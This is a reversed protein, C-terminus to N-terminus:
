KKSSLMTMYYSYSIFDVTNEKLLEEDEKTIEITIRNEEFYRHMYSPYYGRSQVDTYFLNNQDDKISVLVDEPNCTEPYNELRALMCGVQGNPIIEHCKKVAEASALFQHHLAQYVTNIDLSKEATIGAGIYPNITTINIENFTLWYKVSNKYREFVTTCYKSFFSILKRNEWGGYKLVLNLPMEYHCLTVLPEINYKKLEKFVSDYFKLGEENPETDDGNPFIRPWSISLRLVKFGMESFLKVDEKYKSYFDIGRRKPFNGEDLSKALIQNIKEESLKDLIKGKSREKMPVFEIMDMTSLGKGGKDFGGEVQNAAIAGGWLFDNPFENNM